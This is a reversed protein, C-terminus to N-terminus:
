TGEKNILGLCDPGQKEIQYLRMSVAKMKNRKLQAKARM